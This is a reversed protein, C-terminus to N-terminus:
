PTGFVYYRKM